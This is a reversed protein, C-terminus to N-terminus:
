GKNLDYLIEDANHKGRNKFKHLSGHLKVNRSKFFFITNDIEAREWKKAMNNSANRPEFTFHHTRKIIGDASTSVNAKIYIIM